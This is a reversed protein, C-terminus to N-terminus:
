AFGGSERFALRDNVRVVHIENVEAGKTEQMVIYYALGELVEVSKLEYRKHEFVIHMSDSVKLVFGLPLDSRELIVQRVGIAYQGGYTFNSNAKLYGIDFKLAKHEAAPLLVARGVEITDWTTTKIGTTVDSSTAIQFHVSLPLGYGRKLRYLVEKLTSRLRGGRTDM